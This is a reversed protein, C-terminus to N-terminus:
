STLKFFNFAMSGIILRIPPLALGILGIKCQISTIHNLHQWESKPEKMDGFIDRLKM